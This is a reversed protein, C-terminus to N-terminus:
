RFSPEPKTQTRVQSALAALEQESYSLRTVSLARGTRDDAGVLVGNLRPNGTAPEFKSPMGTLFRALSPEREMGIIGDHPGTMGADTMYATGNPLIREDATQVHTHTGVVLTAKGDLHWGMAIKESTAEAHIDVVIVRTKHRLKDIEQLVVAFPDDINLMFVRGMVNVVGVARGDGTQALYSGRGPVGAPYNAPRLLRPENDIYGLVEKKDWIHNGSTMVDVGWELLSDGIDKTVGFGAAANEANAITLDVGHHEILPRLGKRILERGPRGVIDGLFLINM